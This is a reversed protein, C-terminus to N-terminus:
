DIFNVRFNLLKVVENKEVTRMALGGLNGVEGFPRMFEAPSLKNQAMKTMATASAQVMMFPM